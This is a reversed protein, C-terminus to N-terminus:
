FASSVLRIDANKWASEMQSQAKVAADRKNEVDLAASLGALAWGNAPHQKLDALYVAEAEKPRGAKLLEAGLLHRVPFFWDTPEDYALRDEKTVAQQLLNIAQEPENQADAIRAKAVLAGIALVDKATNFGAAADAPLERTVKELDSVTRKAEVVRGKAALATAKAYLYGGTLAKSRPNPPPEAIMEDWRGFRVLVSYAESFPWDMGPMTAILDDTVFQRARRAADLAEESRGEMSASFALFQYNHATYVLNYYDLPKTKSLYTLDARIGRRNAESAEEYRGVREMIHAPMHELHGSAPMMGRLREAAAVARGPDPSAEVAHIYYHNAGPHGPDRKLVFELVALIEGTGPAPKGDLTWLKWANLNMMAEAYLTQVDLDNPFKQAVAKMAREYATLVSMENSSDLANPGAYRKGLAAILGQEAPSAQSAYKEAQGLAEWAVRARPTAMMPLNYNPGVTLAVGWYCIACSPDLEAARAFSRTSEDHNFAWLFRMGQDFFKQAEASSTTAERHFDGLGDFLMAGRAWESLTRPIHIPIDEADKEAAPALPTPVVVPGGRAKTVWGAFLIAICLALVSWYTKRSQSVSTTLAEARQAFKRL